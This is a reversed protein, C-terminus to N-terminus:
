LRSQNYIDLGEYSLKVRVFISNHRFDVKTKLKELELFELFFM